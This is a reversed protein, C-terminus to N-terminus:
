AFQLAALFVDQTSTGSIAAVGQLGDVLRFMPESADGSECASISFRHVADIGEAVAIGTPLANM